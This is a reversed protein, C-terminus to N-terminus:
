KVLILDSKFLRRKEFDEMEIIEGWKARCIRGHDAANWAESGLATVAYFLNGPNYKGKISRLKNHNVGYFDQKWSALHFDAENMYTGSNPTVATLKPILSNTLENEAQEEAFRSQM